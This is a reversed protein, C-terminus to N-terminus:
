VRQRLRAVERGAGYAAEWNAAHKDICSRVTLTAAMVAFMMAVAGLDPPAVIDLIAIAAGSVWLAAAVVGRLTITM